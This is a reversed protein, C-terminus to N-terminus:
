DETRTTDNIKRFSDEEEQHHKDLRHKLLRRRAEEEEKMQKELKQVWFICFLCALPVTYRSVGTFSAISYFSLVVLLVEFLTLFNMQKGNEGARRQYLSSFKQARYNRKPFM